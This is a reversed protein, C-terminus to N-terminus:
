LSFLWPKNDLWYWEFLVPGHRSTFDKKKKSTFDKVFSQKMRETNPDSSLVQPSIHGKLSEELRVQSLSGM